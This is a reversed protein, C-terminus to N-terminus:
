DFATAGAPTLEVWTQGPTLAVPIGDPTTWTPVSALSPKTWRVEIVHGDTFVWGRGSGIFQQEGVAAGATDTMGTGLRGVEAVVVNAPRVELEDADVHPTGSQARRYLGLSPDWTYDIGVSAYDIRIQTAPAASLPLGTVDNRYEFYVPPPDGAELEAAIDWLVSPDTMLDYTGPRDEARYYEDRSAAGLNVMKYWRIIESHVRNAGSWVFIPNNFGRFVAIDTTRGSRVPGIEAPTQSHFVAVLRTFGGEIETVFVIDAQTLAAQPRGKETNDIKAVIAPRQALDPDSLPLGTLPAIGAPAAAPPLAVAQVINREPDLQGLLGQYAPEGSLVSVASVGTVPEVDLVPAPGRTTPPALPSSTTTSSTPDTDDDASDDDVTDSGGDVEADAQPDTDGAGEADDGGGGCSAAVLALSMLVALLSRFRM